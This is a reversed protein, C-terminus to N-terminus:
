VLLDFKTRLSVYKENMDKYEKARIRAEHLNSKLKAIIVDKKNLILAEERSKINFDSSFKM